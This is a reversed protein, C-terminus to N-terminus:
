GGASVIVETLSATWGDPASTATEGGGVGNQVLADPQLRTESAITLFRYLGPESLSLAMRQPREPEVPEDIGSNRPLIMTVGLAEDIQLVYLYRPANRPNRNAALLSLPAGPHVTRVSGAPFPPCALDELSGEAVCTQSGVPANAIAMLSEARAVKRLASALREELGADAGGLALTVGRGKIALKDDRANVVAYEEGRGASAPLKALPDANLADAIRKAAPGSASSSIPVGGSGWVHLTERAVMRTPLDPLRGAIQLPTGYAGSSGAVAEALPKATGSLADTYSRFLAFKSGPTVGSLRGSALEPKGKADLMAEFLPVPRDAGGFTANLAGEGQPTQRGETYTNVRESAAVMFDGFAAGPNAAIADILASTFLGQRDTGGRMQPAERAQQSDRSAGLHVRYGGGPGAPIAPSTRVVTPVALGRAFRAEGLDPPPTKKKKGTKRDGRVATASHCSDFVTVVNVGQSTARDIIGRLERDLIDGRGPDDPDRADTPLITDFSGSAQDFESDDTLRSGHGAYFFLLTDGRGSRTILDNLAALIAERTACDDTLSTSLANASRCESDTSTDFDIAYAKRMAAKFRRSDGAAGRLDKFEADPVNTTSFRYRDIGVFLARM